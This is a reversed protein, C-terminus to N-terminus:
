ILSLTHKSPVVPAPSESVSDNWESMLFSEHCPVTVAGNTTPCQHYVCSSSCTAERCLPTEPLAWSHCLSPVEASGVLQHASRRRGAGAQAACIEPYGEEPGPSHCEARRGCSYGHFCLIPSSGHPCGCGFGWAIPSFDLARNARNPLTATGACGPM